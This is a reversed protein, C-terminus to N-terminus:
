IKTNLWRFFKPYQTRLMLPKDFEWDYIMGEEAKIDIVELRIFASYLQEFILENAEENSRSIRELQLADIKQKEVYELELRKTLLTEVKQLENKLIQIKKDKQKLEMKLDRQALSSGISTDISNSIAKPNVKMLHKILLANYKENRRITSSSVPLGELKGLNEAVYESLKTRNRFKVQLQELELLIQTIKDVRASTMRSYYDQLAKAKDKNSM